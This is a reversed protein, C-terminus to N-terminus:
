ATVAASVGVFAAFAALVVLGAVAVGAVGPRAVVIYSAAGVVLLLAVPGLFPVMRPLVHSRFGYGAVLSPVGQRVLWRETRRIIAEDHM